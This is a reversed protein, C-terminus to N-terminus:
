IAKMAADRDESFGSATTVALNRASLFTSSM